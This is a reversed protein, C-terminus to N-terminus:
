SAKKSTISYGDQLMNTIFIGYGRTPDGVMVHTVAGILKGGQVIPSGSMGQVIGGTASLLRPDTIHVVMNQSPSNPACIREIEVKYREVTDGSVNALIEAPGRRIEEPKAVPLAEQSKVLSTEEMTGFVGRATNAYLAGLDQQLDFDGRLEGPTGAEGPKVAKVRAYMVAGVDLPMLLNTDTDNIGHGLAGFAGTEPDYFTMTGIGALSDRVWAGLRAVGDGGRAPEAQLELARGERRVSLAVPNGNSRAVVSQFQETSELEEGGASVILDGVRLGCERAPACRGAAGEVESLGVVLIGQSFLKIGVTHGVPILREPLAEVRIAPQTEPAAWVSISGFLTLAMLVSLVQHHFRHTKDLHEQSKMWEIAGKRAKKRKEQRVGKGGARGPLEAANQM